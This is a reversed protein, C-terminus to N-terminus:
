GGPTIGAIAEFQGIIWDRVGRISVLIGLAIVAGILAYEIATVGEDEKIFRVLSDMREEEQEKSTNM